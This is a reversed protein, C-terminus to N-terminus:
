DAFNSRGFSGGRRWHLHAMTTTHYSNGDKEIVALFTCKIGNDENTWDLFFEVNENYPLPFGTLLLRENINATYADRLWNHWETPNTYDREPYIDRLRHITADVLMRCVDGAQQLNFIRQRMSEAVEGMLDEMATNEEQLQGAYRISAELGLDTIYRPVTIANGRFIVHGRVEAEEETDFTTIGKALEELEREEKLHKCQRLYEGETIEGKQTADELLELKYHPNTDTCKKCVNQGVCKERCFRCKTKHTYGTRTNSKSKSKKNSPM